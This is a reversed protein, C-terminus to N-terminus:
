HMMPEPNRAWAAAFICLLIWAVLMKMSFVVLNWAIEVSLLENNFSIAWRPLIGSGNSQGNSQCAAAFLFAVIGKSIVFFLTDKCALSVSLM